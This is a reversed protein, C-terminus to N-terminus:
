CRAKWGGREFDRIPFFYAVRPSFLETNKGELSSSNIPSISVRPLPPKLGVTDALQSFKLQFVGYSFSEVTIKGNENRFILDIAAMKWGCFLRHSSPERFIWRLYEGSGLNDINNRKEPSFYRKRDRLLLFVLSFPLFIVGYLSCFGTGECSSSFSSVLTLLSTFYMSDQSCLTCSSGCRSSFSVPFFFHSISPVGGFRLVVTTDEFPFSSCDGWSRNVFTVRSKRVKQLIRRRLKKGRWLFLFEVKKARRVLLNVSSRLRNEDWWKKKKKSWNIKKKKERALSALSNILIIICTM